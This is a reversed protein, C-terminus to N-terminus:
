HLFREGKISASSENGCECSGAVTGKCQWMFELGYVLKNLIWKLIIREGTGERINPSCYLKHLDENHLKRWNGTM